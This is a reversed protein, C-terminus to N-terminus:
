AAVRGEMVIDDPQVQIGQSSYYDVIVPNKYPDIFELTLYSSLASYRKLIERLMVVYNEERNFVTIKVPESLVEFSNLTTESFEYLANETMDIKLSYKEAAKHSMVNLLGMDTILLLIFIHVSYKKM